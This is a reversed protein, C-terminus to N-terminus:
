EEGRDSAGQRTETKEEAARAEREEPPAARPVEPPGERVDLVLKRLKVEEEEDEVEARRRKETEANTAEQDRSLGNSAIM